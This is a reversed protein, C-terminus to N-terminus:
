RALASAPAQLQPAPARARGKRHCRPRNPAMVRYGLSNPHLGDDSLDPRLRGAPGIMAAFYDVYLYNRQRCLNEIWGNLALIASPPHIRRTM